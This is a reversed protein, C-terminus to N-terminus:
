ISTQTLTKTHKLIIESPPLSKTGRHVRMHNKYVCQLRLSKGCEECQYPKEGIHKTVHKLFYQKKNFSQGCFNCLFTEKDAQDTHKFLKHAVLASSSVYRADIDDFNEFGTDGSNKLCYM